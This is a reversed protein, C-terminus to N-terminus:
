KVALGSSPAARYGLVAFWDRAIAHAVEDALIDIRFPIRRRLTSISPASRMNNRPFRSHSLSTSLMM